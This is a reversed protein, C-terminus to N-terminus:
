PAKRAVKVPLGRKMAAHSLRTIRVTATRDTVRIVRMKGVLEAPIIEPTKESPKHPPIYAVLEDGIAIGVASGLNVFAYDTTGYLPQEVLFELIEGSPGGTVETMKNEPLPPTAPLMMALDGTKLDAFQYVIQALATNDGMSDVRLVAMPEVVRGYGPVEITTRFALLMDSAKLASSSGVSIYLKDQPHFQTGLKDHQDRPDQPKYMTAVVALKSTDAIWPAALWEMPQVPGTRLKESVIAASATKQEVYFLSRNPEGSAAAAQAAEPAEAALGPIVIKEAPYIWHPNDVVQRNADYILPWRFPDNFYFRALDWLTDGKKVVHEKQSAPQQAAAPMAVLALVLAVMASAGRKPCVNGIRM